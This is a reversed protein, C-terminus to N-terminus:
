FYLKGMSVWDVCASVIFGESELVDAKKFLLEVMVLIVGLIFFKFTKLVESSCALVGCGSM